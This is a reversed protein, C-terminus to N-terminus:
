LYSRSILCSEIFCTNAWSLSRTQAGNCLMVSLSVSLVSCTSVCTSLSLHPQLYGAAEGPSGAPHSRCISWGSWQSASSLRCPASGASPLSVTIVGVSVLRWVAPTSRYDIATIPTGDRRWEGGGAARCENLVGARAKKKEDACTVIKAGLTLQTTVYFSGRAHFHLDHFIFFTKFM